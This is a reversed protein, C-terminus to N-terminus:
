RNSIGSSIDLHALIHLATEDADNTMGALSEDRELIKM